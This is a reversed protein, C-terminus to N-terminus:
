INDDPTTNEEELVVVDERDGTDEEDPTAIETVDLEVDETDTDEKDDDVLGLADLITDVKANLEELSDPDNSEKVQQSLGDLDINNILSENLQDVTKSDKDETVLLYDYSSYAEAIDSYADDLFKNTLDLLDESEGEWDFDTGYINASLNYQIPGEISNDNNDIYSMLRVKLRPVDGDDRVTFVKGYTTNFSKIKFEQKYTSIQNDKSTIREMEFGSVDYGFDKLKKEIKNFVYKAKSPVLIDKM